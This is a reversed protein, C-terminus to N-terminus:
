YFITTVRHHPKIDNRVLEGLNWLTYDIEVSTVGINKRELCLRKIEEICFITM